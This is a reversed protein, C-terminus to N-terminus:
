LSEQAVKEMTFSEIVDGEKLDNYNAIGIGCEYGTKVEAVDDKFRRLSGVKGTFIVVNDRILRLESSRTVKGESIYCGAVVGVKPVRFLQRVEAQGLIKERLTPELLGVMAQKIDDVLEYIVTYMRLEVREQNALEAAAKDPRVNFGVVIANSAAALLVDAQTIAGISSRLISVRVKDSPLEAIAKELAELSGQVDGKLLISMEKVEGAAIDRALSELTRRASAKQAEQRKKEQRFAAIQRAKAEEAVTQFSDGAMPSAAFGMVEVPTSPAASEARVGRDDVMARVKGFSSGAIFPDGTKLTGEQVLITAIIGRARDLRAELVVGTAPKEPDAKFEKLDAVLLIMELLEDLGLRKKASVECSVVDGGYEEVLLDNDALQQKVRDASAGPKDIKNIAVVIPVDAAKSHDIAELTQPKVGDDAAIVLVVIDTAKAGRARMLTFAEHGPTDLFTIKRGKEEIQYAGIHQTIGGAETDVVSTARFADLLSTKGHDVHGMVTVVPPREPLHSRDVAATEAAAEEAAPAVVQQAEEEFSIIKAESGFEKAVDIATAPELPQNITALVGRGILKAIVDKSKRNLKEALEKVTVGESLTISAPVPPLEQKPRATPPAVTERKKDKKRRKKGVPPGPRHPAAPTPAGPRVAAPAGTRAAAPPAAPAAPKTRKIVTVPPIRRAPFVRPKRATRQGPRAEAAKPPAAALPPAPIEPEAPPPPPPEPAGEESPAAAAPEEEEAKAEAQEAPKGKKEKAAEALLRKSEEEEQQKQIEQEESLRKKEAELALTVKERVLDATGGDLVSLDSKVEQGMRDLLELILASQVKLEKALQYVRVKQM